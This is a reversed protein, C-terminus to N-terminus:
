KHQKRVQMKLYLLFETLALLLLLCTSNSLIDLSFLILSYSHLPTSLFEWHLPKSDSASATTRELPLTRTQRRPGWHRHLRCLGRQTDPAFGGGTASSNICERHQYFRKWSSYWYMDCLVIM